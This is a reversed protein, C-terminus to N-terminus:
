SHRAGSRGAHRYNNRGILFAVLYLLTFVSVTILGIIVFQVYQGRAVAYGPAGDMYGYALAQVVLVIALMLSLWPRERTGVVYDAVGMACIAMGFVAMWWLRAATIVGGYASAPVVVAGGTEAQEDRLHLAWVRGGIKIYPGLFYATLTMFAVGFAAVLLGERWNPWVLLFACVAAGAVGTWYIRRQTPLSWKENMGAVVTLALFAWVAVVFLLARPNNLM